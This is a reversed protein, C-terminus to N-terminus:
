QGTVGSVGSLSSAVFFFLNRSPKCTCLTSFSTRAVSHALSGITTRLYYKAVEGSVWLYLYRM